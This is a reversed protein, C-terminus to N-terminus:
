EKIEAPNVKAQEVPLLFYEHLHADYNTVMVSYCHRCFIGGTWLRMFWNPTKCAPCGLLKENELWEKDLVTKNGSSYGVKGMFTMKAEDRYYDTFVPQCDRCVNMHEVEPAKGSVKTDSKVPTTGTHYQLFWRFVDTNHVSKIHRDCMDCKVGHDQGIPMFGSYSTPRDESKKTKDNPLVEVVAEALEDTNGNKDAENAKALLLKFFDEGQAIFTTNMALRPEKEDPSVGYEENTWWDQPESEGCWFVLKRRKIDYVISHIKAQHITKQGRIFAMREEFTKGAKNWWEQSLRSKIEIGDIFEVCHDDSDVIWETLPGTLLVAKTTTDEGGILPYFFVEDKVKYNGWKTLKVYPKEEITSTKSSDAGTSEVAKTPRIPLNGYDVGCQKFPLINSQGSITNWSREGEKSDCFTEIPREHSETRWKGTGVPITIETIYQDTYGSGINVRLWIDEPLQHVRKIAKGARKLIGEAMWAESAFWTIGDSTEVFWLPREANRAFNLTNNRKDHWVVAYAGYIREEIDAFSPNEELWLALQLSDSGLKEDYGSRLTGNHVLTINETVHPHAMKTDKADGVTASRNHYVQFHSHSAAPFLEKHPRDWALFADASGAMKMWNVTNGEEKHLGFGGVADRGRLQNIWVLEPMLRPAAHNLALKDFFGVIGCM